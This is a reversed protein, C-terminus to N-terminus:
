CVQVSTLTVVQSKRTPAVVIKQIYCDLARAVLFAIEQEQDQVTAAHNQVHAGHLGYAGYLM